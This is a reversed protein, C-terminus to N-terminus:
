LIFFGNSLEMAQAAHVLHHESDYNPVLNASPALSLVQAQLIKGDHRTRAVGVEPLYLLALDIPRCRAHRDLIQPLFIECLYLFQAYRCGVM